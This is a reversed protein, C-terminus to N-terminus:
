EASGHVCFYNTDLEHSRWVGCTPCMCAKNVQMDNCSSQGKMQACYIGEVQEPPPQSACTTFKLGGTRQSVCTSGNHVKCTSCQCDQLQQFNYEVKM